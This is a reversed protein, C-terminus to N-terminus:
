KRLPANCYGIVQMGEIDSTLLYTKWDIRPDEAYFECRVRDEQMLEITEPSFMGSTRMLFRAYAAVSRATDAIEVVTSMSDDLSGRQERFLIRSWERGPESVSSPEAPVWESSHESRVDAILEENMERIEKKTPHRLGAVMMEMCVPCHYMGLPAGKLMEPHESCEDDNKYVRYIFVRYEDNKQYDGITRYAVHHTEGSVALQHTWAGIKIMADETPIGPEITFIFALTDVGDFGDSLFSAENGDIRLPNINSPLFAAHLSVGKCSFGSFNLGFNAADAVTAGYTKGLKFESKDIM